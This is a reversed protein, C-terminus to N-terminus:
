STTQAHSPPAPAVVRKALEELEALLSEVESECNENALHQLHKSPETFASFGASGAAGKISHAGAVIRERDGDSLAQRMAALEDNLYEIFEVVIECFIEEEVPLTSMLKEAPSGTGGTNAAVVPTATCSAAEAITRVLLEAEVPKSLYHSCGAEKCKDADGKMAHATLAIIPVDIGEQRLRTAATYGDMVPMQMDMLILDFPQQTALQVALWGNEAATVTLGANQLVAQFYKRNIRGDEALLVRLPPLSTSPAAIISPSRAGDALPADSVSIRSVDGTPICVSFTSGVGLESCVVIDGGLAKAIRRSIALGLGTGGYRRTVSTDAQVFPDFITDLKETSIGVGTDTVQIRLTEKDSSLQADIQVGGEETFKIANGVLNM